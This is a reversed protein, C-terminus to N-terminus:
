FRNVFVGFNVGTKRHNSAIDFAFTIQPMEPVTLFYNSKFLVQSIVLSLLEM